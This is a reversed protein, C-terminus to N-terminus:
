IGGKDNDLEFISIPNTGRAGIVQGCAGVLSRNFLDSRGPRLMFCAPPRAVRCQRFIAVQHRSPASKTGLGPSRFAQSVADSKDSEQGAVQGTLDHPGTLHTKM